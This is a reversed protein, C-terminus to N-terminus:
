LLPPQAMRRRLVAASGYFTECRCIPHPRDMPSATDSVTYGPVPTPIGDVAITEDAVAQVDEQVLEQTVASILITGPAAWQLLLAALYATPGMATYLHQPAQPLPGVV